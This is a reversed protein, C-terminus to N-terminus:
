EVCYRLSGGAKAVLVVPTAWAFQVPEIFREELKDYVHQQEIERTVPKARYRHQAVPRNGPVLDIHHETAAIEGLNRIWM